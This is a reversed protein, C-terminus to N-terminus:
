GATASPAYRVCLSKVRAGFRDRDTVVLLFHRGQLSM